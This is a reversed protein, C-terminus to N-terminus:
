VSVITVLYLEILILQKSIVPVLTIARYNDIDNVNGAKDKLVQVLVKQFFVM